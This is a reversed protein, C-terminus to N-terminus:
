REIISAYRNSCAQDAYVLSLDLWIEGPTDPVVFRVMGVRVCDDAPVAGQWRWRHSGGPWSLLATCDVADLPHHLDSVVHVDLGLTAGVALTDPMRDAVVIVPRCADTVSAFAAKPRREHDLIATSVMPAPDALSSLCFGGAPRYKLRRLTEIHHRLLTAQYQQTAARWEGYSAFKLPNVYKTMAEADLGHHQVLWQWELEPWSSTDVLPEGDPVSQSGFESVFRVLRPMAAAVGPLDHEDGYGWGLRLRTDTGELQPLHPLVGSHAIVPRSEDAKEIARKVWRDLIARNWTPLEQGAFSQEPTDHGCWVAISPHHGLVDVAVRAQEVAQRRISRAYRGHLPLDQWVLMGREDAAEYLEPRAIHGKVRVLDLGAERALVIDHRVADSSAASLDLATPSLTIGKAFLREGNVSFVWDELAIERLGTRVVHRDSRVGDVAVDVRVETLPQAGM